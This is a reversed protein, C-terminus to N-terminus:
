SKGSSTHVNFSTTLSNPLSHFGNINRRMSSPNYVFCYSSNMIMAVSPPKLSLYASTGEILKKVPGFSIEVCKLNIKLM